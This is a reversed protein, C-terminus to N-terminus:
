VLFELTDQLINPPVGLSLSFHSWGELGLAWLTGRATSFLPTTNLWINANMTWESIRWIEWHFFFCHDMQDMQDGDLLDGMSCIERGSKGPGGLTGLTGFPGLAQRDMKLENSSKQLDSLRKTAEKIEGQLETVSGPLLIDPQYVWWQFLHFILLIGQNRKKKPPLTFM